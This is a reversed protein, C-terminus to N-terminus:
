NPLKDKPWHRATHIVHLIIIQEEIGGQGLAITYCLVYPLGVVTKEYTGEVRGARGLSREGLKQATEYLREAVREAAVRNDKAVEVVVAEVAKAARGSWLVARRM